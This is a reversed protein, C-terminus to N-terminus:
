QPIGGVLNLFDPPLQTDIHLFLLIDGQAINAGANMQAARGRGAVSIVTVGTQKALTLTRDKSGGDVVIIEIDSNGQLQLLTPQIIAAENLVPIIISIIFKAM